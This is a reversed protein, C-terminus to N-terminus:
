HKFTVVFPQATPPVMMLDQQLVLTTATLTNIKFSGTGIPLLTTSMQLSDSGKFTWTGSGATTPNCVVTGETVTYTGATAFTLTNDIFCAIQPTNSVDTGGYTAAQFKWAGSALNEERTPPQPEDPDCSVFVALSVLLPLALLWSIKKM